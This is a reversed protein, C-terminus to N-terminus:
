RGKLLILFAFNLILLNGSAAFMRANKIKLKSMKFQNLRENQHKSSPAQLKWGSM